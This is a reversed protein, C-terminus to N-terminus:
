HLQDPDRMYKIMFPILYKFHMTQGVQLPASSDGGKGEKWVQANNSTATKFSSTSGFLIFYLFLCKNLKTM